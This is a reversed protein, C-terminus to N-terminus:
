HWHPLLARHRSTHPLLSGLASCYQLSINFCFWHTHAKQYGHLMPTRPGLQTPVNWPTPHCTMSCPTAHLESDRQTGPLLSTSSQLKPPFPSWSHQGALQKKV